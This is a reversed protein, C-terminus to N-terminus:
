NISKKIIPLRLVEIGEDLLSEYEEDSAEGLISRLPAELYHIKRAEEAFNEGVDESNSVISSMLQEFAAFMEAQTRTAPLGASRGPTTVQGAPDSSHTSQPLKAQKSMHVVSPVRRIETSGCHPCSILGAELQSDYSSPSQFWGEFPHEQKCSLDFIIM